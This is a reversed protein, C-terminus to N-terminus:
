SNLITLDAQEYYPKRINLTDAIYKMLEESSKDKVLPRRKDRALRPFLNEADIKLYITFANANILSMNDFFCPTGGGVAIIAPDSLSLLHELTQRELKRFGEEGQEDFIANVTKGTQTVIFADTDVFPMSFLQALKRGMTSKGCAPMGLLAIHRKKM